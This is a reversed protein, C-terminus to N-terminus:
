SQNQVLTFVTIEQDCFLRLPPHTALGRNTYLHNIGKSSPIRDILSLGSAWKWNKVVGFLHKTGPFYNRISVPLLLVFKAIIPILPGYSPICIQGGHTHGSVQL